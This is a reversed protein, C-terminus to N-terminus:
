NLLAGHILTKPSYYNDIKTSEYLRIGAAAAIFNYLNWLPIANLCHRILIQVGYNYTHIMAM